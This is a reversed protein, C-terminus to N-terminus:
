WFVQTDHFVYLTLFILNLNFEQFAQFFSSKFWLNYCSINLKEVKLVKKLYRMTKLLPVHAIM